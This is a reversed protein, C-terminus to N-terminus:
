QSATECPSTRRTSPLQRVNEAIEANVDPNGPRNAMAAWTVDGQVGRIFGPEELRKSAGVHAVASRV